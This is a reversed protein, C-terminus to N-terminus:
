SKVWCDCCIWGLEQVLNNYISGGLKLNSWVSMNQLSLYQPEEQVLVKGTLLDCPWGNVGPWGTTRLEPRVKFFFWRSARKLLILYRHITEVIVCQFCSQSSAQVANKERFTCDPDLVITTFSHIFSSGFLMEALTRNILFKWLWASFLHFSKHFFITLM